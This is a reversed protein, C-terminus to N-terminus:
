WDMKGGIKRNAKTDILNGTEGIGAWEADANQVCEVKYYPPNGKPNYEIAKDSGIIITTTPVSCDLLTTSVGEARGSNFSIPPVTTTANNPLPTLSNVKGDMNTDHNVSLYWGEQKRPSSSLVTNDFINTEQCYSKPRNCFIDVNLPTKIIKVKAFNVRPYILRDPAVQAFYFNRVTNNLDKNGTPVYHNSKNAESYADESKVDINNFTIQIPNITKTLHKQINYRLDLNVLGSNGDIFKDKTINLDNDIYDINIYKSVNFDENNFREMRTIHITERTNSTNYNSATLIKNPTVIVGDETRLTATPKLIVDKAMCSNTFNTAPTGNKTQAIIDGVFQISTEHYDASLESM